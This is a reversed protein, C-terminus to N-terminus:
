IWGTNGEHHQCVHVLGHSIKLWCCSLSTNRNGSFAWSGWNVAAAGSSAAPDGTWEHEKHGEIGYKCGAFM